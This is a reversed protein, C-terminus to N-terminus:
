PVLSGVSFPAPGQFAASRHGYAESLGTITAEVDELSQQIWALAALDDSDQALDVSSIELLTARVRSIRGSLEVILLPIMPLSEGRSLHALADKEAGGRTDTVAFALDSSSTTM